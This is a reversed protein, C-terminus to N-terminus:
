SYLVVFAATVCAFALVRRGLDQRRRSIVAALAIVGLVAAAKFAALGLWGLQSLWWAALPNVEDAGGHRRVLLWTLVYDSVSLFVFLHTIRPRLGLLMALELRAFPLCRTM